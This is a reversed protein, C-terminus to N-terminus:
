HGVNEDQFGVGVIIAVGQAVREGFEVDLRRRRRGIARHIEVPDVHQNREAHPNGIRQEPAHGCQLPYLREGGADVVKQAAFGQGRVRDQGAAATNMPRRHALGNHM